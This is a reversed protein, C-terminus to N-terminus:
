HLTVERQSSIAAQGVCASLVAKVLDEEEHHRQRCNTEVRRRASTKFKLFVPRAVELTPMASLCFKSRIWGLASDGTVPRQAARAEWLVLHFQLGNGTAGRKWASAAASLALAQAPARGPLPGRGKAPPRAAPPGWAAPAWLAGCHGGLAMLSGASAAAGGREEARRAERRRHGRPEEGDQQQPLSNHGTGGEGGRM